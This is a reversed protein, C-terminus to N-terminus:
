SFQGQNQAKGGPSLLLSLDIHSRLTKESLFCEMIMMTMMDQGEYYCESILMDKFM